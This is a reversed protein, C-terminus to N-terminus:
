LRHSYSFPLERLNVQLPAEKKTNIAYLADISALENDFRNVISRVIYLNGDVDEAAGILVYTGKAKEDGIIM